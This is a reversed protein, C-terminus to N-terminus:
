GAEGFRNEHAGDGENFRVREMWEDPIPCSIPEFVEAPDIELFKGGNSIRTKIEPFYKDMRGIVTYLRTAMEDSDDTCSFCAKMSNHSHIDMYHIYQDGAFNDTTKSNVSVKTATQEPVDVVYKDDRKDFYLNVLAERENGQRTYHRFLTVIQMTVYMPIRPLAPIFAARVDSLM